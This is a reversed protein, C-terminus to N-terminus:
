IKEAARLKASRAAPNRAVEGKTPVIPKHTVTKLIGEKVNNQIALKVIRDELSHYSVVVLRGTSSLVKVAETLGLKLNDLEDNVYIRLAQFVRTASNKGNRSKGIVTEVLAVLELTTTIKRVSRARFIADALAWARKEEGYKTFIEYLKEKTESNILNLATTEQDQNMRMDLPANHNFSFGRGPSKLQHLSVGLDFVVGYIELSKQLVIEKLNKFNDQVVIWNETVSIKNQTFSIAEKDLDISLVKAGRKFLEETYSGGGLTADVYWKGEQINLLTLADELLVPQHYSNTLVSRHNTFIGEM